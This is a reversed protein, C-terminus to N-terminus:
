LISRYSLLYSALHVFQRRAQLDICMDKNPLNKKKKKTKDIAEENEPIPLRLVTVVPPAALAICRSGARPSRAISCKM